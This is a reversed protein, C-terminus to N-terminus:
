REAQAVQELTHHMSFTQLTSRDYTGAHDPGLACLARIQHPLLPTFLQVSAVQARLSTTGLRHRNLQVSEELDRGRGIRCDTFTEKTQPLPLAGTGVCVGDIYLRVEGRGGGLLSGHPQHVVALSLWRRLPLPADAFVHTKVVRPRNTGRIQTTRVALRGATFFAEVGGGSAAYFSFLRPEYSGLPQQEAAAVAAAAAAAGHDSGAGNSSAESSLSDTSAAVEHQEPLQLNSNSSNMVTSHLCFTSGAQMEAEEEDAARALPALEDRAAAPAGRAAAPATLSEIRLWVHFTYGGALSRELSPIGLMSHPGHLDFFCAPDGHRAAARLTQQLPLYLDPRFTSSQVYLLNLLSALARPSLNHGGLVELLVLLRPVVAPPAAKHALAAVLADALGARCCRERNYYAREVLAHMAEFAWQLAGAEAAHLAAMHRVFLPLIDANCVTAEALRAPPVISDGRVLVANVAIEMILAVALRPPVAAVAADSDGRPLLLLAWLREFGGCAAAFAARATDDLLLGGLTRTAAALLRLHLHAPAAGSAAILQMCAQLGGTAALLARLGAPRPGRLARQVTDLM